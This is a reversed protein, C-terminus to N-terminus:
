KDNEYVNTVPDVDKETISNQQEIFQKTQEQLFQVTEKLTNKEEESLETAGKKMGYKRLTRSVLVEMLRKQSEEFNLDQKSV